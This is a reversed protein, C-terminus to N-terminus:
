YNQLYGLLVLTRQRVLANRYGARSLAASSGFRQPTWNGDIFRGEADHFQLWERQARTLARKDAPALQALLQAYARNLEADLFAAYAANAQALAPGGGAAEGVRDEYPKARSAFEAGYDPADPNDIARVPVAAALGAISLGLIM